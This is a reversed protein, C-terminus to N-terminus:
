KNIYWVVVFQLEGYMDTARVTQFMRNNFLM